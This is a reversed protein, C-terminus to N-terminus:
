SPTKEEVTTTTTLGAKVLAIAKETGTNLQDLITYATTYGLIANSIIGYFTLETVQREPILTLLATIISIIATSVGTSVWLNLLYTTDFKLHPDEKKKELFTKVARQFIAIGVFFLGIILPVANLLEM